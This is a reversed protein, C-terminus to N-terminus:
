EEEEEINSSECVCCFDPEAIDINQEREELFKVIDGNGDIVALEYYAKNFVKTQFAETNGCDKCKYM